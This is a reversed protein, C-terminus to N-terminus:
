NWRDRYFHTVPRAAIPTWSSSLYTRAARAFSDRVGLLNSERSCEQTEAKWLQKKSSKKEQLAESAKKERQSQEKAM